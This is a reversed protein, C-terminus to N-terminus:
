WHCINTGHNKYWHHIYIIHKKCDKKM